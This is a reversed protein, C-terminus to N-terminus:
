VTVRVYLLRVGLYVLIALLLDATPLLTGLSMPRSADPLVFRGSVM